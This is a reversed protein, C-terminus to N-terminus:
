GHSHTRDVGLVTSAGSSRLEIGYEVFDIRAAGTHVYQKSLHQREFHGHIQLPRCNESRGKLNSIEGERRTWVTSENSHRGGERRGCEERGRTRRSTIETVNEQEAGRANGTVGIEVQVKGRM